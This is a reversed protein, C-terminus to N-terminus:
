IGFVVLVGVAVLLVNTVIAVAGEGLFGGDLPKIPVLLSATMVLAITGLASTAPVGLWTGLVLLAVGMLASALPGIWHVVRADGETTAVPLPAWGAGMLTAGVAAAIGPAWGSQRLHVGVARAAVLRARWVIVMLALSGLVLLIVSMLSAAGHVTPWALVAVTAVVALLAPTTGPLRSLRAGLLDLYKRANDGAGKTMLGRGLRLALLLALAFGAATAPARDQGAAFSWDPPLPKSLDLKAFLIRDDSIFEHERDRLGDDLAFARAFSGQSSLAHGLGSRELAVGLNFWGAAYHTQASVAARFADAAAGYRKDDGLLIGLENAAPFLGPDSAVARQYAGVADARRGAGVEALGVTQLFIPNRPDAAVARRAARLAAARHGLRVAVLAQNNDLVEPRRGPTCDCRRLAPEEERAAAYQEDAAAFRRMRLFTDGSQARASYALFAARNRADAGRQRGIVRTAVEDADALAVQAEDYRRGLELATGRKALAEAEDLSWTASRARVLRVAKAFLRAAEDYRKSAFAIEGARDIPAPDRPASAAWEEAVRLARPLDGAFRWMNQRDDQVAASARRARRGAPLAEIEAVRRLGAASDEDLTACTVGALEPRADTFRAPLGRLADRARGALVLDRRRSWSPCWRDHGTVGNVDRFQPIFSFDSLPTGGPGSGAGGPLRPVWDLGVPLVRGSGLSLPGDAEEGAIADSFPRAPSAYLAPGVPFGGRTVRTAAQAAGAFDHARERYEVLRAQLPSSAPLAAVAARQAAVADDDRHLGTSARAAGARLGPDGPRLALAHEYRDLARAFHDRASFPRGDGIAYARRLEDDGAAAWGAPSRPYRRQLEAIVPQPRRGSADESAADLSRREATLWLPTPDGGCAAAAKRLEREVARALPDAALLFALNLQPLCAGRSRARDFLAFALAGAQGFERSPDSDISRPAALVLLAGLDNAAAVKAPAPHRLGARDLLPELQPYRYPYSEAASLRPAGLLRTVTPRDAPAFVAAIADRLTARMAAPDTLTRRDPAAAAAFAPLDRLARGPSDAAAPPGGDRHELQRSAAERAAFPFALLAIVCLALLPDPRRARGRTEDQSSGSEPEM